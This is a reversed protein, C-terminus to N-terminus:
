SGFGTEPTVAAIKDPYAGIRIEQAAGDDAMALQVEHDFEDKEEFYSQGLYNLFRWKTGLEILFEDILSEEADKTFETRFTNPTTSADKVWANSRYEFVFTERGSPTPDIYFRKAGSRAKIRFSDLVGTTVIGSKLTQWEQPNLPGYVRDYESRNWITGSVMAKFDSPLPYHNVGNATDFTHEKVLVVWNDRALRKGTTQAAQLLRRADQNNNGIITTPPLFGTERAVNQCITLLSM